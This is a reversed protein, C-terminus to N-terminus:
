FLIFDFILLYRGHKMKQPILINYADKDETWKLDKSEDMKVTWQNPSCMRLLEARESPSKIDTTKVPGDLITDISTKEIFQPKVSQNLNHLSDLSDLPSLGAKMWLRGPESTGFYSRDNDLSSCQCNVCIDNFSAFKSDAIVYLPYM